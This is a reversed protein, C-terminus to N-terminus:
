CVRFTFTLDASSPFPQPTISHNADLSYPDMILQGTSSNVSPEFGYWASYGGIVGGVQNTMGVSSDASVGNGQTGATYGTYGSYMSGTGSYSYGTYYTNYTYSSQRRRLKSRRVLKATTNTSHNGSSAALSTNSGSTSSQVTANTSINAMMATNTTNALPANVAIAIPNSTNNSSNGSKRLYAKYGQIAANIRGKTFSILGLM